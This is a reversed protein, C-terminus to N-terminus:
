YCFIIHVSTEKYQSVLLFGLDKLSKALEVLDQTWTKVKFHGENIFYAVVM